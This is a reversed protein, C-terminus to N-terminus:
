NPPAAALDQFLAAVAPAFVVAILAARGVRYFSIKMPVAFHITQITNTAPPEV